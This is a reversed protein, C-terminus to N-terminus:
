TEYANDLSIKTKITADMRREVKQAGGACEMCMQEPFFSSYFIMEPLIRPNCLASTIFDM